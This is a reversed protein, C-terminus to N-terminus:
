LLSPYNLEKSSTKRRTAHSKRRHNIELSSVPLSFSMQKGPGKHLACFSNGPDPIHFLDYLDDGDDDAAAVQEDDECEKSYENEEDNTGPISRKVISLAYEVSPNVSLLCYFKREDLEVGYESLFLASINEDSLM